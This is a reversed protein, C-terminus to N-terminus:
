EVLKISNKKEINRALKNALKSIVVKIAFNSNTHDYLWKLLLGLLIIILPLIILLLPLNLLRYFLFYLLNHAIYITLSYYSYYFIFKYSKKTKLIEYEEVLVFISFLILSIGMSSIIHYFSPINLFHMFEATYDFTILGGGLILSPIIIRRKLLGRRKEKDKNTYIEFLIDGIVTGILFAAFSSFIPHLNVPFFFIHYFIGFVNFEGKFGQLFSLIV